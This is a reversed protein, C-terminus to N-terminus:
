HLKLNELLIKTQFGREPNLRNFHDKKCQHNLKVVYNRQKNYNSIDTTNRTKSGKNRLQSRKM